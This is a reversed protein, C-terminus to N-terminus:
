VVGGSGLERLMRLDRLMASFEDDSYVFGGGRPRVMSMVKIGADHCRGIVQGAVGYSVTTGGAALNDNLEVRDAMLSGDPNKRASLEDIRTGNEICVEITIGDIM